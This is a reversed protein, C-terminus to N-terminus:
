EFISSIYGSSILTRVNRIISSLSGFSHSVPLALLEIDEEKNQIYQNINRVAAAENFHTLPVVKPTGTSGSTFIVYSLDDLQNVPQLNKNDFSYISTNGLDIYTINNFNVKDELQKQTLLKKANSSNLMYDIREKPYTPDIPIYAAGAKLVALIAIIM